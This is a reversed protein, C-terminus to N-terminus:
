KKQREIFIEYCKEDFNVFTEDSYEKKVFEKYKDMTPYRNKLNHTDSGVFHIAGQEFLERIMSFYKDSFVESNAQLYVNRTVLSHIESKTYIGLYREIHALVVQLGNNLAVIESINVKNSTPLELLLLDSNEICLSYIDESKDIGRYYHVESGLFLKINGKYADKLVRYSTNRRNIYDDIDENMPYFHPTLILTDVGDKELKDLLQLSEEISGSGDDMNPLIHTHFDLM